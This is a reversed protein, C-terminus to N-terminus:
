EQGPTAPVAAALAADREIASVTWGLLASLAETKPKGGGTWLTEDQADLQAIARGIAAQRQAVEDAAAAALEGVTPTAPADQPPTDQVQLMQESRLRRATADDVRLMQWQPGFRVGCRFFHAAGNKPHIRAYLTNM